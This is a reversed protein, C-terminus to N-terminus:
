EGEKFTRRQYPRHAPVAVPGGTFLNRDDDRRDVEDLWVTWRDATALLEAESDLQRHLAAALLATQRNTVRDREPLNPM